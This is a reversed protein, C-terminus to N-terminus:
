YDRGHRKLLQSYRWLLNGIETLQDADLENLFDFYATDTEITNGMAGPRYQWETPCDGVEYLHAAVDFWASVATGWPDHKLDNM